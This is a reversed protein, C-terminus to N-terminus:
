EFARLAHDFSTFCAKMNMNVNVQSQMSYPFKAKSISRNTTALMNVHIIQMLRAVQKLKQQM